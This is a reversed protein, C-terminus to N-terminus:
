NNLAGNAIWKTINDIKCSPLKKSPPMNKVGTWATTNQLKNAVVMANIDTYNTLTIGGSPNTSNHCGTCNNNIIPLINATFKFATSDCDYCYNNRAGQSIWKNLMAIQESTLASSPAPPMRDNPDSKLTVTYLKSSTPSGPNVGGTSMVKSYVSLDVGEKHTAADHCGSMACYTSLLPAIDKNFYVTDKSCPIGNNTSDNIIIYDSPLSDPVHKCSNAIIFLWIIVAAFLVKLNSLLKM